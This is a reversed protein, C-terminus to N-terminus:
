KRGLAWNATSKVEDSTMEGRMHSPPELVTEKAHSLRQADTWFTGKPVAERSELWEELKSPQPEGTSADLSLKITPLESKRRKAEVPTCQGAALLADLRQGLTLRHQREAYSLAARSALSMTAVDPDIVKAPEAGGDPNGNKASLAARLNEVLTDDDTDDPLDIGFEELVDLVEDTLDQDEVPNVDATLDQPNGQDDALRVFLSMRKRKGRGKRAGKGRKKAYKRAPKPGDGDDDSDLNEAGGVTIPITKGGRMFFGDAPDDSGLRIAKGFRVTSTDAMNPEGSFRYPRTSLSMRLACAITQPEVPVFPTQSHDVPHNVMDVHTICDQYTNGAGDRWEPFLVPSVYVTNQEAAEVAKATRLDLTIEAATGDANVRFDALHGITNAASRKRDYADMTLPQLDAQNDAHDWDIPIIQNAKSMQRFQQEWHRLRAPTVEVVGDPSHYKGPKLIAKRFKSM